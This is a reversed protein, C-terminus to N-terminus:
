ICFLTGRDTLKGKKLYLPEISHKRLFMLVEKGHAYHALDGFFALLGEQLLGCTGGIFGYNLGPLEIDGPPLQLVDIGNNKLASAIGSDSTIVARDSLVATSCKTYGQKVNICKKTRFCNMLGPDTSALRHMFIDGLVLSNLIIDQPYSENLNNHTYLINIGRLSLEKAFSQEMDRHLIINKKDIICLQMDPHGWVAPYLKRCPPCLITKFNLKNLTELEEESTRYDVIVTNM